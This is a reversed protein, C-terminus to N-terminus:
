KTKGKVWEAPGSLYVDENGGDWKVHFNNGAMCVNIEKAITKGLLIATIGAVCAAEPSFSSEGEGLQWLRAKLNDSDIVQIFVVSAGKPFLAHTGLAAGLTPVDVSDIDDVHVAGHPTGLSMATIKYREGNVILPHNICTPTSKYDIPILYPVMNPQGLSITESTISQM